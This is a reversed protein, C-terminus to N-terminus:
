PKLPPAQTRANELVQRDIADLTRDTRTEQAPTPAVGAEREKTSVAGESPQYEFGNARNGIQAPQAFAAPLPASLLVVLALMQIRPM